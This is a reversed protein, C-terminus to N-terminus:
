RSVNLSFALTLLDATSIVRTHLHLRSCNTVWPFASLFIATCHPGTCTRVTVSSQVTAGLSPKKDLLLPFFLAKSQVQYISRGTSWSPSCSSRCTSFFACFGTSLHIIYWSRKYSQPKTMFCCNESSYPCTPVINKFATVIICHTVSITVFAQIEGNIDIWVQM